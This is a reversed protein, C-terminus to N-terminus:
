PLKIHIFQERVHMFIYSCFFSASARLRAARDITVRDSSNITLNHHEGSVQVLFVSTGYYLVIVCRMRIRASSCDTNCRDDPISALNTKQRIKKKAFVGSPTSLTPM